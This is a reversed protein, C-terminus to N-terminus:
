MLVYMIYVNYVYTIPQCHFQVSRQVGRTHKDTHETTTTKTHTRVQTEKHVKQAHIDMSSLISVAYCIQFVSLESSLRACCFVSLRLVVVFFSQPFSPSSVPALLPVALLLSLSLPLSLSALSVDDLEPLELEPSTDLTPNTQRDGTGHDPRMHLTHPVSVSGYRAEGVLWGSKRGQQWGGGGSETQM